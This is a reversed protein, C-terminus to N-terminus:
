GETMGSDALSFAHLRARLRLIAHGHIQCTRSESIGLRRGIEKLNLEQDYYLTLVAQEREPLREIQRLLECQFQQRELLQLPSPIVQAASDMADQDACHPEIHLVRRSAEEVLRLYEMISVNLAHAVDVAAAARGTQQEIHSTAAAASRAKRHVSRPIWDNRRMEDLMAGRIRIAAYTAFKAGLSADYNRSAEVLGILGAQMVDDFEIGPPLRAAFQQAIRRVLVHHAAVCLDAPCRAARSRRSFVSKM